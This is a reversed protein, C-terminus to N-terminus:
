LREVAQVACEPWHLQPQQLGRAKYFGDGRARAIAIDEIHFNKSRVTRKWGASELPGLGNGGSKCHAIRAQPLM